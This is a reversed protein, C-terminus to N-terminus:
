FPYMDVGLSVFHKKNFTAVNDAQASRASAAIYSDAFTGKTERALSIATIVLEKDLVKLNSFSTIAELFGLIESNTRKYLRDLVWAIEFFVPPGTVLNLNGAQAQEFFEKALRMQQNDDDAQVALRLFVNTDVFTLM